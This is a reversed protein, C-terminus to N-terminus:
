APSDNEGALGLEPAIAKMADLVLPIHETWLDVGLAQAAHEIEERHVAAAFSRDKWKNRVSKIKTIDRIDRSPRVLAVATLFGTLEDVAVLSKEMLSTPQIGTREAAHAAVARVIDEDVGKERLVQLGTFPHGDPATMDPHKEYDFDHVLGVIGWKEEDEGFRRAYARMAAEVALMHRILSSSETWETVLQWAEERNM